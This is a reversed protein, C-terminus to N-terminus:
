TGDSKVMRYEAVHKGDGVEIVDLPTLSFGRQLHELIAQEQTKGDLDIM